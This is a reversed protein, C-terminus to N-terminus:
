QRRRRISAMVATGWLVAAAALIVAWIGAHVTGGDTGTGKWISLVAVAAFVAALSLLPLWEKLRGTRDKAQDM